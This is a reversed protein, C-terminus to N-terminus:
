RVRREFVAALQDEYKLSWEQPLQRLLNALTSDAPVLVTGVQLNDLAQRWGPEGQLLILFQRVRDAGYLDHRDDFVVRRQPYFRYILYGGWTDTSFVPEDSREKQLFDTAAVPVSKPDFQAHILQSSGLRGGNLCLALAGMVCVAPWLHGQLRLEQAGMRDSFEAMGAIRSRMWRWAGPRTALTAFDEWLTPGIVLVLLMSSVPLNRASLLGTYVALILVLLHSLRLSRRRGALAFVTLALIMGFCRPAWFHFNPSRFESIRGMLYRDALYSYVHAHLRWGFPNVFTAVAAAAWSWAMMGARRAAKLATFADHARWSEVASAVLYFALLVLGYIWAGHLNVWFLMSVPFFWPLWRPGSGQEWRELAIFWLLVFLWSVIHPRAFLHITAACESMLMLGLALLLGTGRKLLQSLLILFTSAVIVACLWVVGNLGAAHHLMGLWLDYLWEWAFWPQGHMTSSYPDTRPLAHTILIQEGTRIHWGIDADALPLKSLTGALVSWFLCIFVIDRASPVLCRLAAQGFKAANDTM